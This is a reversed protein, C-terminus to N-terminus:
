RAQLGDRMIALLRAALEPGGREREAALHIAHLLARVETPTVDARVAGNRQGATLLDDLRDYLSRTTSALKAHVDVGAGALAEALARNGSGREVMATLFDFLADGADPSLSRSTADATLREVHDLLIAEYLAVKTPFHRYVTGAGVGARRAIEDIPVALGEEAFATQAADLVRQRNRVADARV